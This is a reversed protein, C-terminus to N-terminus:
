EVPPLMRAVARGISQGQQYGDIVANVFHIGAFVRSAGNEIAAGSFGTFHRTVGPLTTSTTRYRVKNGFVETLVQAAAAGLVTHTSPYDPVPPTVLFPEWTPDTETKPNGDDVVGRIATVPRWFRFHYKADFGAIFGDAMAFNVLALVRAAEWPDLRSRGIVTNAIRNWGIPSDEYWFRAIESQDDSRVTSDVRGIAKVFDFDLAYAASDLAAPGGLSHQALDIGFPTLRGWGPVFAFDFPETFQYDGPEKSTAYPPENVRDIGDTARRALIATASAHGLAIGAQKAPGNPVHALARGYETDIAAQQSPVLAVLVDRSAAAVSAAPSAHPVASLGPTYVQYRPKIANLADHLAAHLVALVRSQNLPDVAANQLARTAAANWETVANGQRKRSPNAGAESCVLAAMTATVAFTSLLRYTRSKM